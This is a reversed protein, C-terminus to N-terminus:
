EVLGSNGTIEARSDGYLVLREFPGLNAGAAKQMQVDEAAKGLTDATVLAAVKEVLDLARLPEEALKDVLATVEHRQIIGREALAGAIQHARKLFNDQFQAYKDLEPQTKEVYVAAEKLAADADALAAAQKENQAKLVEVETPM